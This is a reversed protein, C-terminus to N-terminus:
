AFLSARQAALADERAKKLALAIAEADADNDGTREIGLKACVADCKDSALIANAMNMDEKNVRTRTVVLQFPVAAATKALEDQIGQWDEGLGREQVVRRFYVQESETYKVNKGSEDTTKGREIGTLKELKSVVAARVRTLHKHAIVHQVAEDLCAGAKGALQDFEEVSNFPLEVDFKLGFVQTDVKM